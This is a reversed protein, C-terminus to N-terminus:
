TERNKTTEEGTTKKNKITGDKRELCVSVEWKRNGTEQKRDILLFCVRVTQTNNTGMMDSNSRQRKMTTLSPRLLSLSFALSLCLPLSNNRNKSSIAALSHVAMKANIRKMNYEFTFKIESCVAQAVCKFM